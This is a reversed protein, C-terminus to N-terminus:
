TLTKFNPSNNPNHFNVVFAFKLEVDGLNHRCLWFFVPGHATFVM